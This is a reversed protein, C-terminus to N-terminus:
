GNKKDLYEKSVNDNTATFNIPTNSFDSYKPNICGLENSLSVWLATIAFALSFAFIIALVTFFINM